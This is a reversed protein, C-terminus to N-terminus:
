EGRWKGLIIKGDKVIEIISSDFEMELGKDYALDKIWNMTEMAGMGSQMAVDCVSFALKRLRDINGIGSRFLFKM